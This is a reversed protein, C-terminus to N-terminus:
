SELFSVVKRKVYNKKKNERDKWEEADIPPYTFGCVVPYAEKAEEITEGVEVNWNRIRVEAKGPRLCRIWTWVRFTRLYLDISLFRPFCCLHYQHFVRCEMLVENVMKSEKTASNRNHFIEVGEDPIIATRPPNNIIAELYSKADYVVNDRTFNNDLINALHEACTSKTSGEPGTISFIGDRKKVRNKALTIFAKPSNEQRKVWAAERSLTM